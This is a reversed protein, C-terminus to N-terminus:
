HAHGAAVAHKPRLALWIITAAAAFTLAATIFISGTALATSQQDVLQSVFLRSQEASLGHAQLREISQQAGSPVGSLQSRIGQVGDYWRTTVIATAIAGAMSRLFNMVGAASTAEEESVAGLALTTLPIFFFPMGAGQILQPLALTWFDAGSTWWFVRILSTGGLWLIGFSVLLRQDVKTSLKAVVPAMM